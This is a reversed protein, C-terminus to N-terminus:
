FEIGLGVSWGHYLVDDNNKIDSGSSTQGFQSFATAIDSLYFVEWSGHLRMRKFFYITLDFAGEGEWSLNFAGHDHDRLTKTDNFDRMVSNQHGFNGMLGWKGRLGFTIWDEPNIEFLGGFQFGYLRNWTKAWYESTREDKNFRIRAYESEYVFRLGAIYSLSFYNIRQPTIHRIYNIEGTDLKSLYRVNASDADVYDNTSINLPMELNGVSTTGKNRDWRFFGLFAFQWTSDLNPMINMLARLGPNHGFEDVLNDASIACQGSNEEQVFCRPPVNDREFYVVDAEFLVHHPLDGHQSSFIPVAFILALFLIRRM